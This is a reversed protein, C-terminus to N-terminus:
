RSGGRWTRMEVSFPGRVGASWQEAVQLARIIRKTPSMSRPLSAMSGIALYGGCGICEFDHLSEGLQFDTDIRFLRGSVGVLALAGDTEDIGDKTRIAGGEKLCARLADIFPGVMYAYVDDGTFKPPVFKYRALQGFRYSGAFGWILGHRVFVKQDARVTLSYGGVGASDGGIYISKGHALGVICTM